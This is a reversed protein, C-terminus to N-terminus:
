IRVFAKITGITSGISKGYPRIVYQGVAAPIFFTEAYHVVFPEFANVPSEVVAEEGEILNMVQVNGNTHHTVAKSFWHRRTEIFELEHLGTREEKWGDGEAILEVRNILNAAVWDTTRDYQINHKGHEIHVPRPIGDLGVRGWDWLKFTFIYPTASIELVMSNKGSCHITGAPILVHDHKKVSFKNIYKADDFTEGKNQAELLAPILEAGTVDDKVGLYVCADEGADLMYYSEDQTYHMGFNEQIYATLPHVQLSLSGGGMTDLFDFRIPFEFGFRAHVKAGLFQNPKDFVLDIAPIEITIDGVKLMLSNEEPVGDFGWAYNNNKRQLGCVEEMWRGGWVGEDFYPVLRLPQQSAQELGGRFVDGTILKPQDKVHTDLLYDIHDFLARKHRDLVRWEIFYARKYKRLMDEDFNGVGWNDLEKSRLRLQIEWRALDAYILIDGKNVLSAGVGYVIVLGQTIQNVADRLRQLKEVDFFHNIKHVSLVGFVRDDTINQMLKPYLVEESLMAEEANYIQTSNLKSILNTLVEQHRVGHYFDIILVIKRKNSSSLQKSIQSVIDQYGQWASDEYGRVEVVPSKDYNSKRDKIYL